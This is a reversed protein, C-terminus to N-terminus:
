GIIPEFNKPGILDQLAYQAEPTTTFLIVGCRASNELNADVFMLM